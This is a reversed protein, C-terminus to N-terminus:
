EGYEALLRDIDAMLQDVEETKTGDYYGRIRRDKDVLIFAGSHVYGGPANEDRMASVMYARAMDYIDDEDGTVLHWKHSKVALAQAYERLVAVTDHTPDISHSLLVVEPRDIFADHLRVMQQSMKPCISPCTTFFFDAVYVKDAFTAATVRNSDQDVFTFDPITHFLTDGSPSVTREGMIPLPGQTKPTCAGLLSGLFLISLFFRYRM